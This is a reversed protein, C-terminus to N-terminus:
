AVLVLTSPTYNLWQYNKSLKTAVPLLKKTFVGKFGISLLLLSDGM